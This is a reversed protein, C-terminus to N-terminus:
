ENSQDIRDVDIERQDQLHGFSLEYKPSWFTEATAYNHKNFLKDFAKLVLNNNKQQISKDV